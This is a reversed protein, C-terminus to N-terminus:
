QDENNYGWLENEIYAKLRDPIQKFTELVQVRFIEMDRDNRKTKSLDEDLTLKIGSTFLDIDEQILELALQWFRSKAWEKVIKRDVEDIKM